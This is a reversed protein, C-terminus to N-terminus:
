FMRFVPVWCTAAFYLHFTQKWFAKLALKEFHTKKEQFICLATM